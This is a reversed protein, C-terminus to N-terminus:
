PTYIIRGNKTVTDDRFSAKVRYFYLGTPLPEGFSDRGDWRVRNAGVLNGGPFTRVKHGNNTYVGVEVDLADSSLFYIIDTYYRFPNPHPETKTIRSQKASSAEIIWNIITQYDDDQTSPFPKGGNVGSTGHVATGGAALDLPKRLLFSVGPNDVDVQDGTAIFNARSQGAILPYAAYAAHSASGHCDICSLTGPGPSSYQKMTLIPEIESMFREFNLVGEAGNVPLMLGFLLLPSFVLAKM